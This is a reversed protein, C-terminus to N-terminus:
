MYVSYAYFTHFIHVYKTSLQPNVHSHIFFITCLYFAYRFIPFYSFKLVLQLRTSNKAESIHGNLYAQRFIICFMDDLSIHLIDDTSTLYQLVYTLPLLIHSIYTFTLYKLINYFMSTLTFYTLTFTHFILKHLINYFITFYIHLLLIRSIHTSTLYSPPHSVPRWKAGALFKIPVLMAATPSIM